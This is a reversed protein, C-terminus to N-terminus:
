LRADVTLVLITSTSSTVPLGRLVQLGLSGLGIQVAEQLLNM